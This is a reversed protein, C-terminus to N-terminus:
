LRGFVANYLSIYISETYHRYGNGLGVAFGREEVDVDADRKRVISSEDYPNCLWSPSLLFVSVIDFMTMVLVLLSDM